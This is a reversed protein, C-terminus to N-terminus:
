YPRETLYLVNKEIVTDANGHLVYSLQWKQLQMLVPDKMGCPSKNQHMRIKGVLGQFAHHNRLSTFSEVHFFNSAFCVCKISRTCRATECKTVCAHKVGIMHDTLLQMGTTLYVKEGQKFRGNNKRM